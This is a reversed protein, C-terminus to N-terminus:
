INGNNSEKNSERVQNLLFRVIQYDYINVGNTTTSDKSEFQKNILDISFSEINMLTLYNTTYEVSM